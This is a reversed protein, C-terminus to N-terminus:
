VTLKNIKLQRAIAGVSWRQAALERVQQYMSLQWIPQSSVSLPKPIRRRRKPPLVSPTLVPSAAQDNSVGIALAAQRLAATHRVLLKQVSDGLNKVIHWRDAIHIADPAGTRGGTAYVEGGSLSIMEVGPHAQLWAAFAQETSEPLLDVVRHQELDVLITGMRQGRRFSWDDVGLVRPTPTAPPAHRRLLALLTDPSIAIGWAAGQRAGAEGGLAFGTELLQACFRNTRRAYPLVVASLRETFIKRVCSPNLCFFRRVHLRLKVRSPAWALDALKRIYRSQIRRSPQDCLPCAAESQTAVLTLLLQGSDIRVHELRLNATDPLLARVLVEVPASPVLSQLVSM